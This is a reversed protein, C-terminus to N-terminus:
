GLKWEEGEMDDPDVSHVANCIPWVLLICKAQNLLQAEEFLEAAKLAIRAQKRIAGRGEVGDRRAIFGGEVAIYEIRNM